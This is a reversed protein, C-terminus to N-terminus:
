TITRRKRNHYKNAGFDVLEGIKDAALKAIAIIGVAGITWCVVKKFM